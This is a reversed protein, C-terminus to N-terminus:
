EIHFKATAMTVAAKTVSYSSFQFGPNSFTYSIDGLFSSVNIVKKDKGSELLGLLAITFFVVGIVNTKM